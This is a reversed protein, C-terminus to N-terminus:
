IDFNALIFRTIVIEVTTRYGFITCAKYPQRWAGGRDSPGSPECHEVTWAIGLTFPKGNPNEVNDFIGGFLYGCTLLGIVYSKIDKM